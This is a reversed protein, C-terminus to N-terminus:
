SLDEELTVSYGHRHGVLEYCRAHDDRTILEPESGHVVSGRNAVVTVHRSMWRPGHPRKKLFHIAVAGAALGALGALITMLVAWLSSDSSVPVVGDSSLKITVVTGRPVMVGAGPDQASVKATPGSGEPEDIGLGAAALAARADTLSLDTIDPV